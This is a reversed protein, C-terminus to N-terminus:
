SLLYVRRNDGEQFPKLPHELDIAPRTGEMDLFMRTHYINFENDGTRVVYFYRYKENNLEKVLTDKDVPDGDVNVPKFDEQSQVLVQAEKPPLLKGVSTSVFTDHVTQPTLDKNLHKWNEFQNRLLSLTVQM